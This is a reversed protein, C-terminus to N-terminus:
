IVILCAAAFRLIKTAAKNLEEGNCAATSQMCMFVELTSCTDPLLTESFLEKAFFVVCQLSSIVPLIYSNTPAPGRRRGRPHAKRYSSLGSRGDCIAIISIFCLLETKFERLRFVQNKQVCLKDYM